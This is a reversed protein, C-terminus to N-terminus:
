LLEEEGFIEGASIINLTIEKFIPKVKIQLTDM